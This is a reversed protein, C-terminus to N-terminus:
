ILMLLYRGPEPFPVWCMWRFIHPPIKKKTPVGQENLTVYSGDSWCVEHVYFAESNEKSEANEQAISNKSLLKPAKDGQETKLVTTLSSERSAKPLRSADSNKAETVTGGPAEMFSEPLSSGSDESEMHTGGSPETFSEWLSGRDDESKLYTDHPTKNKNTRYKRYRLFIERNEPKIATVVDAEYTNPGAMVKIKGRNFAEANKHNAPKRYREVNTEEPLKQGIEQAATKSVGWSRLTEATGSQQAERSQTRRMGYTERLADEVNERPNEVATDNVGAETNQIISEPSTPHRKGNSDANEADSEGAEGITETSKSGSTNGEATGDSAKIKTPEINVVDYFVERGDNKIATLVDASYDNAGAPSGQLLAGVEPSSRSAGADAPRLASLASKATEVGNEVGNGNVSGEGPAISTEASPDAVVNRVNDGPDAVANVPSRLVEATTSSHAALTESTHRPDSEAADMPPRLTKAIEKPDVGVSSLYESIIYNKGRKTDTVAEM